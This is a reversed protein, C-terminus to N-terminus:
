LQTKSKSVLQRKKSYLDAIIRNKINYYDHNPKTGLRTLLKRIRYENEESADMEQLLNSAIYTKTGLENTRQIMADAIETSNRVTWSDGTYVEMLKNKLSLLRVNKNEPWEYILNLIDIFHTRYQKIYEILNDKNIHDTTEQGFPNITPQNIISQNITINNIINGNNVPGNNIPGNNVPVNNIPGNNIPGNIIQNNNKLDAVQAQLIQVQLTLQKNIVDKNFLERQLLQNQETLHRIIPEDNNLNPFLPSPSIIPYSYQFNNTDLDPDPDPDTNVIKIKCIAEHILATAKLTFLKNCKSCPITKEKKFLLKELLFDRDINALIADCVNIRKLHAILHQKRGFAYGCRECSITAM